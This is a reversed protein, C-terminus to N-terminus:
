QIASDSEVVIGQLSWNQGTKYRGTLLRSKKMLNRAKNRGQHLCEQGLHGGSVYSLDATRLYPLKHGVKYKQVSVEVTSTVVEEVERM